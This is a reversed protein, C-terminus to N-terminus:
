VVYRIILFIIYIYIWYIYSNEFFKIYIRKIYNWISFFRIMDLYMFVFDVYKLGLKFWIWLFIVGKEIKGIERERLM